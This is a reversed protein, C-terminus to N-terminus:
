CDKGDVVGNDKDRKITEPQKKWRCYVRKTERRTGRNSNKSMSITGDREVAFENDRVFVRRKAKREGRLSLIGRM